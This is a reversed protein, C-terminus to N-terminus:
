AAEYEEKQQRESVARALEFGFISALLGLVISLLPYVIAATFEGKMLFRVIELVFTSFTTFSSIFGTTIMHRLATSIKIHEVTIEAVFCLVFSGVVNIFLTTFPFSGLSLQSIFFRCVAGFFAGIAIAVINKMVLAEKLLILTTLLFNPEYFVFVGVSTASKCCRYSDDARMPMQVASEMATLLIIDDFM